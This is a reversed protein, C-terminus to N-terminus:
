QTQHIEQLAQALATRAPDTVRVVPGGHYLAEPPQDKWIAGVPYVAIYDWVVSRRGHEGMSHSILRGKDWFQSTRPDAIRALAATSPRTWDTPLVPEWVVFTRVPKGSFGQLM